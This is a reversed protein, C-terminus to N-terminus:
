TESQVRRRLDASTDLALELLPELPVVGVRKAELGGVAAEDGCVRPAVLVGVEAVRPVIVVVEM